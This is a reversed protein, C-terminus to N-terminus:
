AVRSRSSGESGSVNTRGGGRVVVSVLESVFRGGLFGVFSFIAAGLLPQDLWPEPKPGFASWYVYATIVGGVAGLAKSILWDRWNPHPGPEPFIWRLIMRIEYTENGCWGAFLAAIAYGLTM